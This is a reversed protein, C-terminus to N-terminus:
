MWDDTWPEVQKFLSDPDLGYLKSMTFVSNGWVPELPDLTAVALKQAKELRIREAVCANCPCPGPEMYKPLARWNVNNNQLYDIMDEITMGKAGIEAQLTIWKSWPIGLFMGSDLSRQNYM